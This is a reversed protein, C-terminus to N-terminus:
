RAKPPQGAAGAPPATLEVKVASMKTDLRQIAVGTMDIATPGLLVASRDVLLTAGRERMIGQLIPGLAQEVQAQAKMVGGQILSGRKQVKDQFAAVRTEFEKNRRAKVDAAQIASQQQLAMQDRQLSAKENKLENAAQANLSEVQRQMDHGVKSEGVVRRLDVMLIRAAPAGGQPPVPPAAMAGQCVVGLCLLSAAFVTRMEFFKKTM